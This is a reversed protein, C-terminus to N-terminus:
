RKPKAVVAFQMFQSEKWYGLTAINFLLFKKSDTPRIGEILEIDYDCEHFMRIISAKTFFRLHTKDFIGAEEYRWDKNLLFKAFFDHFYLINPISAVVRGKASLKQKCADLAAWPDPMHELVDNFTIADFVQGSFSSATFYENSVADLRTAAKAAPAQVPEIGFVKCKLEAKVYQGFTGEACGVDLLTETDAPIYQLM